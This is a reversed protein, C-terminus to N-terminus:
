HDLFRISLRSMLFYYPPTPVPTFQLPRAEDLPAAEWVWGRAIIHYDLALNAM